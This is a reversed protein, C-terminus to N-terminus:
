GDAWTPPPRVPMSSDVVEVRRGIGRRGEILLITEDDLTM